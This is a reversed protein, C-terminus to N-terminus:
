LEYYKKLVKDQKNNELKIIEVLLKLENSILSLDLNNKSDM